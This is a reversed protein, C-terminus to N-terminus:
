PRQAVGAKNSSLGLNSSSTIRKNLAVGKVAEQVGPASLAMDLPDQAAGENLQDKYAQQESALLYPNCTNAVFNLPMQWIWAGFGFIICKLWQMGTIPKCGVAKGLVQVFGLQMVGEIGIIILFYPNRFIGDFINYENNLKRAAVQNFLTM